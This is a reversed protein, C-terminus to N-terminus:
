NHSLMHSQCTLLSASSDLTTNASRPFNTWAAINKNTLFLQKFCVRQTVLLCLTAM